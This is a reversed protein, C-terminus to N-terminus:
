FRMARYISDLSPIEISLGLYIFIYIYIYNHIYAFKACLILSYLLITKNTIDGHLITPKMGGEESTGAFEGNEYVWLTSGFHNGTCIGM